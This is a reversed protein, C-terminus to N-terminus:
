RNLTGPGDARSARRVSLWEHLAARTRPYSHLREELAALAQDIPKRQDGPLSARL